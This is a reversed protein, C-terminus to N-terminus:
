VNRRALETRSEVAQTLRDELHAAPRPPSIRYNTPEPPQLNRDVEFGSRPMRVGVDEEFCCLRNTHGLPLWSQLLFPPGDQALRGILPDPEHFPPRAREGFGYLTLDGLSGLCGFTIRAGRNVVGYLRIRM